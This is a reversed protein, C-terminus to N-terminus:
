FRIISLIYIGTPRYIVPHGSINTFVFTNNTGQVFDITLAIFCCTACQLWDILYGIPYFSKQYSRTNKRAQHDSLHKLLAAL